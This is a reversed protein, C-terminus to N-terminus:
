EILLCVGRCFSLVHLAVHLQVRWFLVASDSFINSVFNIGRDCSVRTLAGSCGAPDCGGDVRVRRTDYLPADITVSTVGGADVNAADTVALALLLVTFPALKTM